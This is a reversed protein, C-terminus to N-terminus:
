ESVNEKKLTKTLVKGNMLKACERAERLSDTRVVPQGSSNTALYREKM